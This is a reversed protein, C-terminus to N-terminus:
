TQKVQDLDDKTLMGSYFARINGHVNPVSTKVTWKAYRHYHSAPATYRLRKRKPQPGHQYLLDWWREQWQHVRLGDLQGRLQADTKGRGATENAFGKLSQSTALCNRFWSVDLEGLKDVCNRIVDKGITQDNISRKLADSSQTHQKTKLRWITKQQHDVNTAIKPDLVIGWTNLIQLYDKCYKYIAKFLNGHHDVRNIIVQDFYQSALNNVLEKTPGLGTTFTRLLRLATPIIPGTGEFTFTCNKFKLSSHSRELTALLIVIVLSPKM